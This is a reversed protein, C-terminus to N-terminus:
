WTSSNSAESESAKTFDQVMRILVAKGPDTLTEIIQQSKKTEECLQDHLVQQQEPIQSASKIQDLYKTYHFIRNLIKLKVIEEPALRDAQIYTSIDTVQSADPFDTSLSM